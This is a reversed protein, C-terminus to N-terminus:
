GEGTEYAWHDAGHHLSRLHNIEGAHYLDHEIMAVIIWRTEKPEGWNSMRPRPLEADNLAAVARRLREHGARLWAIASTVDALTGTGEVLPDDWTLTAGAFAHDHYMLRCGGVHQVIDRITRNGGPPIWLWDEPTV